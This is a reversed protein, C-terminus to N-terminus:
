TSSSSSSALIQVREVLNTIVNDISKVILVTNKSGLIKVSDSYEGPIKFNYELWRTKELLNASSLWFCYDRIVSVGIAEYDQSEPDGDTRNLFVVIDKNYNFLKCFDRPSFIGDIVWNYRGGNKEIASISSSLNASIIDPNDQFRNILFGHYEEEFSAPKENVSPARFTGRVWDTANIYFWDPGHPNFSRQVLKQAVTTKGSKPLGVVFINM